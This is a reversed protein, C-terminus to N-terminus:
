TKRRPLIWLKEAYSPTMTGDPCLFHLVTPPIEDNSSPSHPPMAAYRAAIELNQQWFPSASM